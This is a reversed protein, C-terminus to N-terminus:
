DSAEAPPPGRWPNLFPLSPKQFDSVDRSVVILGHHMNHSRHHPRAATGHRSNTLLM